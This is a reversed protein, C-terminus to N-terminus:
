QGDAGVEKEISRLISLVLGSEFASVLAGECFRDNRVIATILKCKTVIDVTDFDFGETNAIVRGENWRSWNFAIMVPIEYVADRFRTVVPQPDCWGVTHVGDEIEEGGKWEGFQLSAEIEPILELLPKWDEYTYANLKEVCDSENLM